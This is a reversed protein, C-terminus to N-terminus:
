SRGDLLAHLRASYGRSSQLRAGSRLVIEYEGHFGARMERIRDVNVIASRHVRAFVAPDLREALSKMTERVLHQVAGAHLRVYNGAAEIWDVEDVPLFFVRGGDRVVLRRAGPRHASLGKLMALLRPAAAEGRALEVRARDLAAAFRARDFPKLLYDIAHVEFARLAHRDFATAFIVAPAPADAVAELVDFGDIEPMQVDLFVLDPRHELIARVAAAGDGAEGVLTVDPERALLTRLRERALPEDDVILARIM